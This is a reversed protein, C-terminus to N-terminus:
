MTMLKGTKIDFNIRSKNLASLLQKESFSVKNLNNYDLKQKFLIEVVFYTNLTKRM